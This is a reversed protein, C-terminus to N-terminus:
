ISQQSNSAQLPALWCVAVAERCVHAMLYRDKVDLSVDLCILRLRQMDLAGLDALKQLRNPSGVAIHIVNSELMEKQQEIKIHKAFLKAM